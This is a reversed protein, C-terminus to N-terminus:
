QNSTTGDQFNVKILKGDRKPSLAIYNRVDVTWKEDKGCKALRVIRSRPQTNPLITAVGSRGIVYQGRPTTKVIRESLMRLIKKIEEDKEKSIGVAKKLFIEAPINSGFDYCIIGMKYYDENSKQELDEFCDVAFQMCEENNLQSALKAMVYVGEFTDKCRSKLKLFYTKADSKCEEAKEDDADDMEENFLEAFCNVFGILSRNCTPDLEYAKLYLRIAVRDLNSVQFNDALAILDNKFSVPTQNKFEESSFFIKLVQKMGEHDGVEKLCIAKRLMGSLSEKQVDALYKYYELAEGFRELGYLFNALNLIHYNKKDGSINRVADRLHEIRREALEHDNKAFRLFLDELLSCVVDGYERSALDLDMGVLDERLVGKGGGDIIGVVKGILNQDIKIM